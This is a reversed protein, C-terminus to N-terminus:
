RQGEPIKCKIYVYLLTCRSSEFKHSVVRDVRDNNLMSNFLSFSLSSTVISLVGSVRALCQRLTLRSVYFFYYNNNNNVASPNDGPTLPIVPPTM